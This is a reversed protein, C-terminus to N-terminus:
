LKKLDLVSRSSEFEALIDVRDGTPIRKDHSASKKYTLTKKKAMERTKKSNLLISKYICVINLTVFTRTRHVVSKILSYLSLVSPM